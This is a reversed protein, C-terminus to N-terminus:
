RLDQLAERMQTENMNNDLGAFVGTFGYVGFTHVGSNGTRTSAKLDRQWAKWVAEKLMDKTGEEEKNM